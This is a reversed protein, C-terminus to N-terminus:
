FSPTLREANPTLGPLLILKLAIFFNLTTTIMATTHKENLEIM